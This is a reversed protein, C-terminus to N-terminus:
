VHLFIYRLSTLHSLVDEHASKLANDYVDFNELKVLTTINELVPIRNQRLCLRTLNVLHGINEIKNLRCNTLDIDTLNIGLPYGVGMTEHPHHSLDLYPSNVDIVPDSDIRQWPRKEEKPPEVHEETM